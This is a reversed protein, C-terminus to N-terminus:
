KLNDLTIHREQKLLPSSKQDSCGCNNTVGGQTRHDVHNAFAADSWFVVTLKEPPIYPVRMTMDAHQRARRVAQNSQLLGQVTPNPFVQQSMSTQVGLDPRSQSSLCDLAGNVARLSAVEQATAAKWPTRSGERSVKIPQIHRAYEEQSYTIEKTM